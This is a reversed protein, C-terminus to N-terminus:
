AHVDMVAPKRMTMWLWLSAAKGSVSPMLTGGPRVVKTCSRRTGGENGDGEEEQCSGTGTLQAHLFQRIGVPVALRLRVGVEEVVLAVAELHARILIPTTGLLLAPHHTPTCASSGGACRGCLTGRCPGGGRAWRCHSCRRCRSSDRGERRKM